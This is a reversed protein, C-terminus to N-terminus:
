RAAAGRMSEITRIVQEKAQEMRWGRNLLCTLFQRSYWQMEQQNQARAILAPFQSCDPTAQQQPPAGPPPTSAVAPTAPQPPQYQEVQPQRPQFPEIQAQPAVPRTNVLQRHANSKTSAPKKAPAPEQLSSEMPHGQSDFEPAKPAEYPFGQAFTKNVEFLGFLLLLGLVVCIEFTSKM